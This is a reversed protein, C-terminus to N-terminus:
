QERRNRRRGLWLFVGAIIFLVLPAIAYGIVQGDGRPTGDTTPPESGVSTLVGAFGLFIFLYAMGFYFRTRTM